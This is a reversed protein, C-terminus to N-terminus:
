RAVLLRDQMFRAVETTETVSCKGNRANMSVAFALRRDNRRRQAFGCCPIDERSTCPVSAISRLSSYRQRMSAAFMTNLGISAWRVPVWDGAGGESHQHARVSTSNITMNENDAATVSRVSGAPCGIRTGAGGTMVVDTATCPRGGDRLRGLLRLVQGAPIKRTRAVIQNAIPHQM